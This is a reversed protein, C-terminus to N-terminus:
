ENLKRISIETSNLTRIYGDKHKVVLFGNDTIDIAKGIYSVGSIIYIIEENLVINRKKYESILRPNKIDIIMDLINNIIEACLMERNISANTNEVLSSATSKLENPFKDKPLTCNIGIGLILYDINSDNLNGCSETLIGGVKKNNLYIDNIWKIQCEIGTVKRIADCIAVSSSTTVLISDMVTLNPRLIISMYIGYNAPSYFSRGLRGKGNTQENAIVVTGHKEGALALKKAIENTSTIKRYNYIKINSYIKNLNLYINNTSIFNNDKALVTIKKDKISM